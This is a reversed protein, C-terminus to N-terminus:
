HSLHQKGGPDQRLLLWTGLVGALEQPTIHRQYNYGDHQTWIECYLASLPLEAAALYLSNEYTVVGYGWEGITIRRQTRVVPFSAAAISVDVDFAHDLALACHHEWVTLESQRVPHGHQFYVRTTGAPFTLPHQLVLESDATVFPVPLPQWLHASCGDLVLTAPIGVLAALLAERVARLLDRYGRWLIRM